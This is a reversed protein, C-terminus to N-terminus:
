LWLGFVKQTQELFKKAKKFDDKMRAIQRSNGWNPGSKISVLYTTGDKRLELDIGEASSKTGGYVLGCVHISL